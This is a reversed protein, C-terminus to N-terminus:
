SVLVRAIPERTVSNSVIGRIGRIMEHCYRILGM